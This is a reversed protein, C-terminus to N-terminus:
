PNLELYHLAFWRRQDTWTARPVFGHTRAQADFETVDFKYSNETHITEGRRLPFAQSGIYLTQRRRSVLHMEIRRELENYFAHHAFATPDLDAGLERRLRLLLNLNFAATVGARDNYARELVAREKHLDLGILLAGPRPARGAVHRAVRALFAHREARSLNGLTSGPFFAVSHLLHDAPDPITFSAMFDAAVPRVPLAPYDAQLERAQAALYEASIDVPVYAAPHELHALLRRIKLTSGAGLEIIEARPGLRAGLAPGHRALIALETRTPYYEPLTCIRDFLESGRRDYFFKSPIRKPSQRLGALVERRFLERGTAQPATEPTAATWTESPAM